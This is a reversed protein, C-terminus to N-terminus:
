EGVKSHGLIKSYWFFLLFSLGSCIVLNYYTISWDFNSCKDILERGIVRIIMMILVAPLLPLRLTMILIACHSCSRVPRRAPDALNKGKTRQNQDPGLLEMPITTSIFYILPLCRILQFLRAFTSQRIIAVQKKKEMKKERGTGKLTTWTITARIIQKSQWAM